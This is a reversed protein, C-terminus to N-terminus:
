RGLINEDFPLTALVISAGAAAPAPGPAAGLGAEVLVFRAGPAPAEPVSLAFGDTGGAPAAGLAGRAAAGPGELRLEYHRGPAPAPLGRLRVLGQGRAEWAVAGFAAGPSGPPPLLLAVRVGPRAGAATRLGAIERASVIREAALQNQAGRLAADALLREDRLLQGRAREIIWLEGLSVALGGLCAATAWPVWAPLGIKANGHATTM